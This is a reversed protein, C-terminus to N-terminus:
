PKVIVPYGLDCVDGPGTLVRGAPTPIGAAELRQKVRGKHLAFSWGEPPSGTFPIGLRELILPVASEMRADGALSECLNFACDPDLEMLRARLAALDGDVPVLQADHGADGLAAAIGTAVPGVQARAAWAPDVEPRADEYDVNYLVAVCKSSRTRRTPPRRESTAQTSSAGPPAEVMM